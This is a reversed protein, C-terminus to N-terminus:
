SRGARVRQLAEWAVPPVLRRVFDKRREGASGEGDRKQFLTGHSTSVESDPRGNTYYYMAISKRARTVIPKQGSVTALDRTASEIARGNQIAEGLGINLVAKELRPVQMVNKYDFEKMLAPVVENRYQVLMPEIM